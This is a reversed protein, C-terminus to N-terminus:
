VDVHILFDPPIMNLLQMVEEKEQNGEQKLVEYNLSITGFPTTLNEFKSRMAALWIKVNALCLKKFM